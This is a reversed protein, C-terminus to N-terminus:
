SNYHCDGCTSQSSQRPDHEIGNWKLSTRAVAEFPADTLAPVVKRLLCLSREDLRLLYVPM